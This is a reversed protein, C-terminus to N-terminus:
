GVVFNVLRGPVYVVKRVTKEELHRQVNEDREALARVSAVDANRTVVLTGRVKGNVLV